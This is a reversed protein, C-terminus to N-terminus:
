IKPIQKKTLKENTLSFIISSFIDIAKKDLYLIQFVYFKNSNVIVKSQTM